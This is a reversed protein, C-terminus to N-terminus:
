FAGRGFFGGDSFRPGILKKSTLKGASDGAGAFGSLGGAGALLTASNLISGGTGPAGFGGAAGGAGAALLGLGLPAGFGTAALGAGLAGTLAGAIGGRSEESGIAAAVQNQYNSINFNNRNAQNQGAAATGAQTVDLGTGFLGIRNQLARNRDELAAGSVIAQQQSALDTDINALANATTSSELAGLNALENVTNQRQNRFSPALTNQAFELALDTVEPDLDITEQLPSLNGSFDFSTLRGGLDLLDNIGGQFRPDSFFQPADPIKPKKKM